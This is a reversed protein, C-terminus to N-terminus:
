LTVIVNEASSKSFLDLFRHRKAASRFTIKDNDGKAITEYIVAINQAVRPLESYENKDMAIEEVKNTAHDHVEIKTEPYDLNLMPGPATVRIEGKDGYIRWALGPAGPFPLGGRLHYSLLAGSQFTGQLQIHDPNRRSHTEVSEGDLIQAEPRQIGAKGIIEKLPGLVEEVYDIAILLM